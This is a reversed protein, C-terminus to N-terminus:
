KDEIEKTCNDCWVMEPYNPKPKKCGCFSKSVVHLDFQKLRKVRSLLQRELWNKYTEIDGNGDDTSTANYAEYLDQKNKM